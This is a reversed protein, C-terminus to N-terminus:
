TRAQTSHTCSSHQTNPPAHATHMHGHLHTHVQQATHQYTSAHLQTCTRATHLHTHQQTHMHLHTHLTHTCTRRSHLCQHTSRSSRSECVRTRTHLTNTDHCKCARANLGIMARLAGCRANALTCVVCAPESNVCVAGMWRQIEMWAPSRPLDKCGHRSAYRSLPLSPVQVVTHEVASPHMRLLHVRSRKRVQRLGSLWRTDQIRM